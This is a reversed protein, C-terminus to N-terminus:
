LSPNLSSFHSLIKVYAAVNFTRVRLYDEGWGREEGLGLAIPFPRTSKSLPPKTVM